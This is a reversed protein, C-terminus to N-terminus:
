LGFFRRLGEELSVKPYYNLQFAAKTIDPCRRSPEDAPYSDPHPILNYNIEKGLIKGIMKALDIMSIEPEPHGINYPEGAVGNLLVKLFGVTADTIYCFTRTQTGNGYIQLPQNQKIKYAFNPLVRYDNENMEGSYVNFPRIITAQIGFQEHYIRVLTEGLRKSEDYCSRPGLCSVNGRYSEKIPIYKPDPDGYIESSSFFSLRCEPNKRAIELSNKLGITAVELTQLPYKRYYFPSAIGAAHLIFDIPREPYFPQIVDHNVIAVGKSNLTNHNTATILNDLVIIECPDSLVEKNLYDFVQVFYRGLFGLGGTILIRKGAFTHVSEQLNTVIEEIDSQLVTM